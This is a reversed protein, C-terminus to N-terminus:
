GSMTCTPKGGHGRPMLIPEARHIRREERLLVLGGMHVHARHHDELPRRGIAVLQDRCDLRPQMQHRAVPLLEREGGELHATWEPDVIGAEVDVIVDAVRRQWPRPRDILESLEGPPDEGLPEVARLRQPLQPQHLPELAVALEGSTTAPLSERQDVLGMVGEHVTDGSDVYRGDQEIEGRLGLRLGHGLGLRPERLGLGGVGLQHRLPDRARDAGRDVECGASEAGHLSGPLREVARALRQLSDALDGPRPQVGRRLHREVRPDSRM